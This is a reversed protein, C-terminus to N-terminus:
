LIEGHLETYNAGSENLNQLMTQRASLAMEYAETYGYKRVSFSKTIRKGNNTCFAVVSPYEGDKIHVGCNGSTNAVNKICNRGNHENTTLRLNEINNNCKNRDIHDIIQSKQITGNHLVWIIRHVTYNFKGIKVLYYKGKWLYGAPDGSVRKNCGNTSTKTKYRLASPSTPDYYFRSSLQEYKYERPESM